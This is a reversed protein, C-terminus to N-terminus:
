ATKRAVILYDQPGYMLENIRFAAETPENVLSDKPYPNLRVVKVDSFGQNEVLFEALQPPIPRMHTPDYHFTTAGVKISEPNPSEILLLGGPVLVRWSQELLQMLVDLPLHEIVHFVSIAGLADDPLRSLHTLADIENAALGRRACAAIAHPNSDVGYAEIGCEALLELWEGRGCGIDLLPRGASLTPHMGVYELHPRLREKIEAVPGRFRDEFALYLDQSVTAAPPRGDTSPAQSPGQRDLRTLRRRQFQMEGQLRAITRGHSAIERQLDKLGNEQHELQQSVLQLREELKQAVMHVDSTLGRLRAEIAEIAEIAARHKDRFPNLQELLRKFSFPAPRRSAPLEPTEPKSCSDHRVPIPKEKTSAKPRAAADATVVRVRQSLAEMDVGAVGQVFMQEDEAKDWNQARALNLFAIEIRIPHNADSALVDKPWQLCRYRQM